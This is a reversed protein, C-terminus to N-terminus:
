DAASAGHSTATEIYPERKCDQITEVAFTQCNNLPTWLGEFEGLTLRANVCNEEVGVLSICEVEPLASEGTHDNSAAPPAGAACILDHEADYPTYENWGRGSGIPMTM